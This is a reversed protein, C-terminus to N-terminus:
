FKLRFFLRNANTQLIITQLAGTATLFLNTQWNILNTSTELAFTAGVPLNALDLRNTTGTHIFSSIRPSMLLFVQEAM